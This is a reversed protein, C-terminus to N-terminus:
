KMFHLYVAWGSMTFLTLYNIGAGATAIPNKLLFGAAHMLRGLVFAGGLLHAAVSGVGGLELALLLLIGLPVYEAANGHARVPRVMEPPLTQGAFVKYKGRLSSVYAGLAAVLLGAIGGYLLTVTPM